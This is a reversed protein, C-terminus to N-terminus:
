ISNLIDKITKDKTEETTMETLEEYISQLNNYAKQDQSLQEERLIVMQNLQKLTANEFPIRLWQDMINKDMYTVFRPAKKDGITDIKSSRLAKRCIEKVGEKYEEPIDQLEEMMNNITFAEESDSLHNILYNMASDIDFYQHIANRRIEETPMDTSEDTVGQGSEMGYDHSKSKKEDLHFANYIQHATVCWPFKDTYYEIPMDPNEGYFSLIKNPVGKINGKLEYIRIICAIEVELLNVRMGEIEHMMKLYERTAKVKKHYDHIEKEDLNNKIYNVLGHIQGSMEHLNSVTIEKGEM